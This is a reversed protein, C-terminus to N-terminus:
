EWKFRQSLLWSMDGIFRGAVLGAVISIALVISVNITIAVATQLKPSM